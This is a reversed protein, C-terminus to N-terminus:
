VASKKKILLRLAYLLGLLFLLALLAFWNGYSEHGRASENHFDAFFWHAAALNASWLTLALLSVSIGGLVIKRWRSHL